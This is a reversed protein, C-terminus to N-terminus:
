FAEEMVPFENVPFLLREARPTTQSGITTMKEGIPERHLYPTLNRTQVTM